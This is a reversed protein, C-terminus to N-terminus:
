NMVINQLSIVNKSANKIMILSKKMEWNMVIKLANKIKESIYMNQKQIVNKQVYKVQLQLKMQAM